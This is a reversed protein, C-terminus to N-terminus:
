PPLLPQEGGLGAQYRGDWRADNEVDSVSECDGLRDQVRHLRPRADTFEEGEEDPVRRFGSDAGGTLYRKGGPFCDM